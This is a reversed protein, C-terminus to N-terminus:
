LKELNGVWSNFQEPYGLWKVYYETSGDATRRRRLVKEVKYTEPSEVLQLEPEYFSGSLEEGHYDAIKYTPVDHLARSKITFIEESWGPLYGKRFQMRARSIRVSDGKEYRFTASRRSSPVVSSDQGKGYLRSKVEGETVSTVDKPAMGISRHKRYNYGRVLDQLIDRYRYTNNATFYRWMREKLTRNVREVVASKTESDTTFFAIHHRKLLDQFQRNQFEKGADTQLKDPQRDEQLISRMATTVDDASKTKLARVWLYKSFIDIVVLLYRYRNNYKALNSLDVIDAQWQSDIGSVLTRRRTYQYRVPKHLTYAPQGQLWKRIQARSVRRNKRHRTSNIHQYLTELRGFGAPHSPSYYIQRLKEDLGPPLSAM